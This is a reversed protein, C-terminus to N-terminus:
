FKYNVAADAWPGPSQAQLIASVLAIHELPAGTYFVDFAVTGRYQAFINSWGLVELGGGARPAM